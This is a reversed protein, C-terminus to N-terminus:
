CRDAMVAFHSALEFCHAAPIEPGSLKDWQSKLMLTLDGDSMKELEQRPLAALAQSWRENMFVGYGSFVQVLGDRGEDAWRTKKCLWDSLGQFDERSRPGAHEVASSVKNRAQKVAVLTLRTKLLDASTGIVAPAFVQEDLPILTKRWGTESATQRLSFQCSRLSSGVPRSRSTRRDRPM